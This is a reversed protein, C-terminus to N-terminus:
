LKGEVMRLGQTTIAARFGPKDSREITVNLAALVESLDAAPYVESPLGDTAANAIMAPFDDSAWAHCGYHSAPEQGTASLAVSYNDPGWGMAEGLASAKARLASPIILTASLM